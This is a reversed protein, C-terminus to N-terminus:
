RAYYAIISKGHSTQKKEWANSSILLLLFFVLRIIALSPLIHQYGSRPSAAAQSSSAARPFWNTSTTIMTTTMTMTMTM